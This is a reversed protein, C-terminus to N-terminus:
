AARERKEDSEAAALGLKVLRRLAEAITLIVDDDQETRFRNIQAFEPGSFWAQAARKERQGSM